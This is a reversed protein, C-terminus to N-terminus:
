VCQGCADVQTRDHENFPDAVLAREFRESLATTPIKVSLSNGDHRNPTRLGDFPEQIQETRLAEVDPQRTEIVGCLLAVEPATELPGAEAGM